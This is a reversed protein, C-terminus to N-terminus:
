KLTQFTYALFSASEIKRSCWSTNGCKHSAEQIRIPMYSASGAIWSTFFDFNIDTGSTFVSSSYFHVFKIHETYDDKFKESLNAM